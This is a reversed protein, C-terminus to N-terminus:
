TGAVLTFGSLPHMIGSSQAQCSVAYLCARLVKRSGRGKGKEEGRSDHVESSMPLGKKM